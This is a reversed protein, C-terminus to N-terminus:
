VTQEAYSSPQLASRFAAHAKPVVVRLWAIGFVAFAIWFCVAIEPSLGLSLRSSASAGTLRGAFTVEVAGVFGVSTMIMAVMAIGYPVLLQSLNGSAVLPRHANWAGAIGKPAYLLVLTFIVGLYLLWAPTLGSLESNLFTIFVAGVIAGFLSGVGGVITMVLPTASQELSLANLGIQEYNLASLGGAIGAVFASIGFVLWRITRVNYGLFPVRDSNDRVSRAMKGLPTREVFWVALVSLVTWVVILAYVQRQPGFTIGFTEPGVWRDGSLGDEGGSLSKFVYGLGVALEVLGLSIMAFALKERVTVIWGILLGFCGSVMGGVLPLLSIPIYPISGAQFGRLLHIIAYGAVGFFIGHAFWLMGGVGFMLHYSVAFIIAIGIQCALTVITSSPNLLPLLVIAMISLAFLVPGPAFPKTM